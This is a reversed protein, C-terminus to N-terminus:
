HSLPYLVIAIERLITKSIPCLVSFDADIDVVFMQILMLLHFNYVPIDVVFLILPTILLSIDVYQAVNYYNTKILLNRGFSYLYHVPQAKIM